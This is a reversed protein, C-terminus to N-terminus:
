FLQNNKKRTARPDARRFNKAQSALTKPNTLTFFIFPVPPPPAARKTREGGGFPYPNRYDYILDENGSEIM